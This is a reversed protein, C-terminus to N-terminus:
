ATSSSTTRSTFTGPPIWVARGQGPRREVAGPVQGHRRGRRDPRRRLRHGRRDRQGAQRDARRGERLRGPRRHLDAVARDVDGPDPDEHRGAYTSGLLTRIEDYFHHPNTDGPNNNFPYGGYYWGYRSTFPLDQADHRQGAPRGRRGPRHRRRQGPHQLALVDREGARHAHVRRVRRGRRPHGGTPRVSGVAAHRLLPDPGIVTGNHAAYEAEHEIFPVTAGRGATESAPLAAVTGVPGAAGATRTGAVVVVAAPLAVAAAAGVLGAAPRWRTSGWPLAPQSM